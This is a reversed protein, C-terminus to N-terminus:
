TLYRKRQLKVKMRNLFQRINKLMAVGGDMFSGPFTVGTSDAKEGPTHAAHHTAVSGPECGQVEGCLVAVVLRGPFQQQGASVRIYLVIHSELM